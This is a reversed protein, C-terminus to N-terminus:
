PTPAPAPRSTTSSKRSTSACALGLATGAAIGLVTGTFAIALITRGGDLFRSLVDRGLTDTGFPASSSPGSFPAGVFGTASHPALLPGILALGILLAVAGLGIQTRRLMLAQRVLGRHRTLPAVAARSIEPGDQSPSNVFAVALDAALNIVM